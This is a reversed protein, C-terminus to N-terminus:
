HQNKTLYKSCEPCDLWINEGDIIDGGYGHCHRCRKRTRIIKWFSPTTIIALIVAFGTLLILFLVVWAEYPLKITDM